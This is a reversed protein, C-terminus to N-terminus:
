LYALISACVSSADEGSTPISVKAPASPPAAQPTHAATAKSGTLGNKIADLVDAQTVFACNFAVGKKWRIMCLIFYSCGVKTIVTSGKPMRGKVTKALSAVTISPNSALLIRASPAILVTDSAAAISAMSRAHQGVLRKWAQM